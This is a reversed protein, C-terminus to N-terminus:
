ENVIQVFYHQHYIQGSSSMGIDQESFDHSVTIGVQHCVALSFFDGM